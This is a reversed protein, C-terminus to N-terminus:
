PEGGTDLYLVLAAALAHIEANRVRETETHCNDISGPGCYVTRIGLKELLSNESWYDAGGINGRDPQFARIARCLGLVPAANPETYSPRGGLPHDRGDPFRVQATAGTGQVARAVAARIEEAAQDLDEAPHISRIFSLRATDPVAVREGGQMAYVLLVPSELLPHRPRATLRQDLEGLSAYIRQAAKLADNGQRPRAWYASRGTVQVEGILFGVSTSYVNLSTPEFYIAFEPHPIVGDAILEVARRM